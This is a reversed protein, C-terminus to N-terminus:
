DRSLGLERIPAIIHTSPAIVGIAVDFRVQDNGAGTSGHAVADARIQAAVAAVKAAQILREPGACLPYVGGRLINGKIIYSVIQDWLEAQGDITYHATAGLEEARAEIAKIEGPSFGGTNVTVTTVDYGQEKLYVVCYSTDLGGSFALVVQKM